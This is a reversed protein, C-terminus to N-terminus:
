FNQVVALSIATVPIRCIFIHTKLQPITEFFENERIKLAQERTLTPSYKIGDAIM